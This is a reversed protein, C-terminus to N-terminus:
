DFGSFCDKCFYKGWKSPKEGKGVIRKTRGSGCATCKRTTYFKSSKKTYGDKDDSRSYYKGAEHDYM